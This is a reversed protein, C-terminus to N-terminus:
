RYTRRPSNSTPAKDRNQHPPVPHRTFQVEVCLHCVVSGLLDRAAKTLPRREQLGCRPEVFVREMFLKHNKSLTRIGSGAGLIVQPVILHPAIHATAGLADGENVGSPFIRPKPIDEINGVSAAPFIGAAKVKPCVTVVVPLGYGISQLVSEADGAFVAKGVLQLLNGVPKDAFVPVVVAPVNEADKFIREKLLIIVEIYPYLESIRGSDAGGIQEHGAATQVGAIVKLMLIKQAYEVEVGTVGDGSKARNDAVGGLLNQPLNFDGDFM